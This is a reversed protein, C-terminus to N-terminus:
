VEQAEMRATWYGAKFAVQEAEIPIYNRAYQDVKEMWWGDAAMRRGEDYAKQVRYEPSNYDPRSAKRRAVDRDLNLEDRHGQITEAPWGPGEAFRRQAETEIDEDTMTAPDYTAPAPSNTEAEEDQAYLEEASEYAFFDGTSKTTVPVFDTPSSDRGKIAEQISEKVIREFRERQNDAEPGWTKVYYDRTRTAIEEDSVGKYEAQYSEWIRRSEDMGGQTVYIGSINKRGVKAVVVKRYQGRSYIWVFDGVNVESIDLQRGISDADRTMEINDMLRQRTEDTNIDIM